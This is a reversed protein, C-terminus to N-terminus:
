YTIPHPIESVGIGKDQRPASQCNAGVTVRHAPPLTSQVRFDLVHIGAALRCQM